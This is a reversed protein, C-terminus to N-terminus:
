KSITILQGYHGKQQLHFGKPGKPPGTEPPARLTLREEQHSQNPDLYYPHCLMESIDSFGVDGIHKLLFQSPGLCKKKVKM